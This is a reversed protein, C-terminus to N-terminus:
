MQRRRKLIELEYRAKEIEIDALLVDKNLKEQEIKANVRLVQLREQEYRLTEV